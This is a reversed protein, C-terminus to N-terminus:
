GCCKKYKKGSGCPCPDNRGIKQNKIPMNDLPPFHYPIGQNEFYIKDILRPGTPWFFLNTDKAIRTNKDFYYGEIVDLEDSSLTAKHNKIRWLIYEIFDKTDKKLYTNIKIINRFHAFQM